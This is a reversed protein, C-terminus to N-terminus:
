PGACTPGRACSVDVHLAKALTGDRRPNDGAGVWFNLTGTAHQGAPCQVDFSAVISAGAELPTILAAAIDVTGAGEYDYDWRESQSTPNRLTRRFRDLYSMPSLPISCIEADTIDTAPSVDLAPEPPQAASACGTLSLLLAAPGHLKSRRM